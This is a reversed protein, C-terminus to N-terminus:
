EKKMNLQFASQAMEWNKRIEEDSPHLYLNMTTQIQSHGLREQVQKIDKTQNYYVTAHTHRFLHPHVEINTKKRLRKFFSGVDQYNMPKGVNNGRLKVFIFNSDIELEDLVEYMYDDFLDMLAQSIYISREGTKLKAGNELEGRNVLQIRHGNKHDLKFDELYLSLVEGIRLGTEFLIQILLKDRINTSANFVIGGSLKYNNFDFTFYYKGTKEEIYFNITQYKDEYTHNEILYREDEFGIIGFISDKEKDIVEELVVRRKIEKVLKNFYRPSEINFIAFVGIESKSAVNVSGFHWIGSTNINQNKKKM